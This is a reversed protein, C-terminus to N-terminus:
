NADVSIVAVGIKGNVPTVSLKEVKKSESNIFVIDVPKNSAALAQQLEEFTQTRTTGVGLIVDGPRLDAKKAAGDLVDTIKLGWEGQPTAPMQTGNPAGSLTSYSPAFFSNAGYYRSSYPAYPYGYNSYWLSIGPYGFGGYGYGGYGRYSYPVGGYRYGGNGGYHNGGYGGYHNGSYSPHAGSFGGGHGGGSHGGGSHGGGGGHGPAAVVTGTLAVVSAVALAYLIRRM